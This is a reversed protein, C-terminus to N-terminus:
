KKWMFRSRFLIFNKACVKTQTEEGIRSLKAGCACTKEDEPIDILNIRREINPDIAKRGSKKRTYSKVESIEDNASSKNEKTEVTETIEAKENFLLQQSEDVLQEASRGFRKWLLLDRQEKMELYKNKFEIINSKLKQNEIELQRYQEKFWVLENTNNIDTTRLGEVQM